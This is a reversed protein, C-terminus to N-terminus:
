QSFRQNLLTKIEEITNNQNEIIEQQAKVAEVLVAVIDNYSVTYKTDETGSVAEPLVDLLDQALIGVKRQKTLDDRFNYTLGQIAMIKDLPNTITDFNEKLRADSTSNFATATATGNVDLKTAPSTTGIGVNGSGDIRIRETGPLSGSGNYIADINYNAM